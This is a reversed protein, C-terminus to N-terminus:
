ARGVSTSLARARSASVVSRHPVVALPVTRDEARAWKRHNRYTTLQALERVVAGVQASLAVTRRQYPEALGPFSERFTQRGCGVTACRLRRFRLRVLVRQGALPLDALQRDVYGHVRGAAGCDPCMVPTGESTVHVVIAGAGPQVSGVVLGALQPFV